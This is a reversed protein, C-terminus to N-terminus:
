GPVILITKVRNNDRKGLWMGCWGVVCVFVCCDTCRGLFIGGGGGGGLVGWKGQWQM